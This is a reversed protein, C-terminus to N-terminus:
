MFRRACRGGSRHRCRHHRRGITSSRASSCASRTGRSRQLSNARDRRSSKSRTRANGSSPASASVASRASTKPSKSSNSSTKRYLSPPDTCLASHPCPFAPQLPHSSSCPLRVYRLYTMVYFFFETEEFDYGLKEIAERIVLDKTIETWMTEQKPKMAVFRRGVDLGREEVVEEERRYDEEPIFKSRRVGNYRQWTIEESAGGIGDLKVRHTGPPVDVIAWDKTAGHYAEGIYAREANRRAYYDAEEAIPDYRSRADSSPSRRRPARDVTSKRRTDIIIDDDYRHGNHEGRHLSLILIYLPQNPVASKGAASKLRTM